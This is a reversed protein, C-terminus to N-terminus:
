SLSYKVFHKVLTKSMVIPTIQSSFLTIQM